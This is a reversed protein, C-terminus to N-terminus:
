KSRLLFAEGENGLFVTIKQNDKLSKMNGKTFYGILPIELTSHDEENSLVADAYRTGEIKRIAAQIVVGGKKLRKSMNQYADVIGKIIFFLAVVILLVGLIITSAKGSAGKDFVVSLCCIVVGVVLVLDFYLSILLLSKIFGHVKFPSPINKSVDEEEKKKFHNKEGQSSLLVPLKNDILCIPIKEGRYFLSSVSKLIFYSAITGEFQRGDDIAFRATILGQSVNVITAEVYEYREGQFQKKRKLALFIDLVVFVAASAFALIVIVLFYTYSTDEKFMSERNFILLFGITALLFAPLLFALFMCTMGYIESIKMSNPDKNKM